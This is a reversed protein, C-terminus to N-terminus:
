MRGGQEVLVLFGWKLIMQDVIELMQYHFKEINNKLFSNRLAIHANEWEKSGSEATFLGDGVFDKLFPLPGHVKKPFTREDAIAEVLRPSSIVVTELLPLSLQYIEGFEKALQTLSQVPAAVDLSFLNKVFPYSKPSPITPQM